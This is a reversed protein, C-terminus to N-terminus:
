WDSMLGVVAEKQILAQLWFVLPYSIKGSGSLMITSIKTKDETAKIDFIPKSVPTDSVPSGLSFSGVKSM